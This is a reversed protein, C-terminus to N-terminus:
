TETKTNETLRLFKFIPQGALNPSILCSVITIAVEPSFVMACAQEPFVEPELARAIEDGSGARTKPWRRGCTQSRSQRARAGVPSYTFSLCLLIQRFFFIRASPKVQLFFEQM